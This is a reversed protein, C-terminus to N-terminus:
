FRRRWGQFNMRITPDGYVVRNAQQILGTNFKYGDLGQDVIYQFNWNVWRM